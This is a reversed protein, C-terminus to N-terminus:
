SSVFDIKTFTLLQEVNFNDQRDCFNNSKPQGSKHSNMKQPFIVDARKVMKISVNYSLSQKNLFHRTLRITLRIRKRGTATDFYVFVRGRGASFINTSSHWTVLTFWPRKRLSLPPLSSLGQSRPQIRGYYLFKCVIALVKNYASKKKLNTAAYMYTFHLFTM